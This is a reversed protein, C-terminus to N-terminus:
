QIRIAVQRFSNVWRSQPFHVRYETEEIPFSLRQKKSEISNVTNGMAGTMQSAEDNMVSLGTGFSMSTNM